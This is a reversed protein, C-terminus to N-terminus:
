RKKIANYGEAIGTGAMSAGTGITSEIGTSVLEYAFGGFVSKSIGYNYPGAIVVQTTGSVLARTAIEESTHTNPLDINDMSDNVAMGVAGGVFDRLFPIPIAATLAGDIAGGCAGNVISGGTAASAIGGGVAGAAITTIVKGINKITQENESYFEKVKGFAKDKFDLLNNNVVEKCKGLPCKNGDDSINANDVKLFSECIVTIGASPSNGDIDILDQPRNLCYAYLNMSIPLIQAGKIKDESVFRGISADYRRAQPFYNDGVTRCM